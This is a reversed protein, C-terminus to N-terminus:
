VKNMIEIKSSHDQEENQLNKDEMSECILYILITLEIVESYIKLFIM